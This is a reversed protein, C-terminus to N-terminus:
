MRWFCLKFKQESHLVAFGESAFNQLLQPFGSLGLIRFHADEDM